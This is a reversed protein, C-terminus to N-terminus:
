VSLCYRDMVSAGALALSIALEGDMERGAAWQTAFDEPGMDERMATVDKEYYERESFYIPMGIHM